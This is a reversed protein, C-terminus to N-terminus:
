LSKLTSGRFYSPTSYANSSSDEIHCTVPETREQNTSESKRATKTSLHSSLLIRYFNYLESEGGFNWNEEDEL